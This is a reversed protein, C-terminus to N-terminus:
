LTFSLIFSSINRTFLLIRSMIPLIRMLIRNIISFQPLFICLLLVKEPGINKHDNIECASEDEELQDPCTDKVSIIQLDEKQRETLDIQRCSSEGRKQILQDGQTQSVSLIEEKSLLKKAYKRLINEIDESLMNKIYNRCSKEGIRDCINELAKICEQTGLKNHIEELVFVPEQEFIFEKVCKTVFINYPMQKYEEIESEIEKENFLLKLLLDGGCKKIEDVIHRCVIFFDGCYDCALMHEEFSVIIEKGLDYALYDAILKKFESHDLTTERKPVNNFKIGGKELVSDCLKKLAIQRLVHFSYFYFAINRRQEESKTDKLLIEYDIEMFQKQSCYSQCLALLEYKSLEEASQYVYNNLDRQTIMYSKRKYFKRGQDKMTISGMLKKGKFDDKEREM